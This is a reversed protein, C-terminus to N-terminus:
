FYMNQIYICNSINLVNLEIIYVKQFQIDKYSVLWGQQLKVKDNKTEQFNREVVVLNESMKVQDLIQKKLFKNQQDIIVLTLCAAAIITWQQWQVDRGPKQSSASTVTTGSNLEDNLVYVALFLYVILWKM